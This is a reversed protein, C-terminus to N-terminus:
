EPFIQGRIEGSPNQVTMINIHYKGARLLDAKLNHDKLSCSGTLTGNKTNDDTNTVTDTAKLSCVLTVSAEGPKGLYVQASQPTGSLHFYNGSVTLIDLGWSGNVWGWVHKPTNITPATVENTTELSAFYRTESLPKLQSCAALTLGLVGLLLTRSRM